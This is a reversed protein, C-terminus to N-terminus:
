VGTRLLDDSMALAENLKQHYWILGPENQGFLFDDVVAGSNIGRQIALCQPFDEGTVVDMLVALNKTWHALEKESQPVRPAYLSTKITCRSPDDGDPYFQWTEIHDIQHTILMNPFIVNQVTGDDLIRAAQAQEAMRRWPAFTFMHQGRPQILLPWSAIYKFISRKHLSFIHYAELFTDLGIKWNFDWAQQRTEIHHYNELGYTALEPALEDMWSKVDVDGSGDLRALVVGLAEDSPLERLGLDARDIGIFCEEGQPRKHLSGDLKYSWAHYPCVLAPAVKSQGEFLKTGRHRCANVFVRSKGAVDRIVLLPVGDIETSFASSPEPLDASLAVVLPTERFLVQRERRLRDPSSYESVPCALPAPAWEDQKTTIIRQYREFIQEKTMSQV